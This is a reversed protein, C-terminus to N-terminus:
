ARFKCLRAQWGPKQLYDAELVFDRSKLLYKTMEFNKKMEAMRKEKRSTFSSTDARHAFALNSLIGLILIIIIKKM